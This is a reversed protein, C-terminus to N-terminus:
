DGTVIYLVMPWGTYSCKSLLSVPFLNVQIDTYHFIDPSQTHDNCVVYFLNDSHIERVSDWLPKFFYQKVDRVEIAKIHGSMVGAAHNTQQTDKTDKTDKTASMDSVIDNLISEINGTDCLFYSRFHLGKYVADLILIKPTVTM